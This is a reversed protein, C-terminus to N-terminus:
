WKNKPCKSDVGRVKADLYCGCGGKIKDCKNNTRIPCSHCVKLREKALPEIKKNKFILNLFGNFINTIEM